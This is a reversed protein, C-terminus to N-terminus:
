AFIDHAKKGKITKSQLYKRVEIYGGLWTGIALGGFIIRFVTVALQMTEQDFNKADDGMITTLISSGTSIYLTLFVLSIVSIWRWLLTNSLKLDLSAYPQLIKIAVITLVLIVFGIAPQMFASTMVSTVLAMFYIINRNRNKKPLEKHLRILQNPSM